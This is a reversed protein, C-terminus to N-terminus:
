AAWDAIKLCKHYLRKIKGCNLDLGLNSFIRDTLYRNYWAIKINRMSFAEKQDAPSKLWYIAKGLGVTTFAMNFHFHLKEKSRLQCQELGAYQKADRILFEIQFRLRYYELIVGPALETDTSMLIEYHDTGKQEVVLIRVKRNLIASWVIGSYYVADNDVAFERIRRKDIQSCVVKGDRTRPRGRGPRKAGNYIYSLNADSRMKTIIHLGQDMMPLIFDKKMFYADVTLYKVMSKLICMDGTIAKVYHSILNLGNAILEKKGPTQVAKLSMATRSKVDIIALCGVELGKLSKQDKGSWWNGIGPTLKGSKHLFTPDFAAILEKGCSRKILEKNFRVFDFPKSM